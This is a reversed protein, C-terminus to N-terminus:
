GNADFLGFLSPLLSGISQWVQANRQQNMVDRNQQMQQLQVTQNFLSEPGPTAGLVSLADRMANRPLEYLLSSRTLQDGFRAREDRTPIEYRQQSRALQEGFRTREDAVPIDFAARALQMAQNLRNSRENIQNIALDRDAAVRMRDFALDLPEPGSPGEQLDAIGSSPLLGRAAARELSRRKTAARYQEIPELAQTRLIALEDPSYGQSKSLEGFRTNLFDMLQTLQPNPRNLAEQQRALVDMYQQLQPHPRNLAELQAQLLRELQSTGPDDFLTATPVFTGGPASQFGGGGGSVSHSVHQADTTGSPQPPPSPRDTINGARARLRAIADSLFEAPDRGANGSYSVQRIVDQWADELAANPDNFQNRGLANLADEISRRWSTQDRAILADRPNGGLPPPPPSEPLPPRTTRPARTEEEDPDPRRFLPQIGSRPSNLIPPVSPAPTSRDIVDPVPSAPPPVTGQPFDAADPLGGVREGPQYFRRRRREDDDFDDDFLGIVAM